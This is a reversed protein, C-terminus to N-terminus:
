RTPSRVMTAFAAFVPGKRRLEMVRRAAELELETKRARAERSSVGSTFRISSGSDGGSSSKDCDGSRNSASTGPSNHAGGKFCRTNASRPSSSDQSGWSCGDGSEFAGPLASRGSSSRRHQPSVLAAELALELACGSRSRIHM